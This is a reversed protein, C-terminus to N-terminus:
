GASPPKEELKACRVAGAATAAWCCLQQGAGWAPGAGLQTVQGLGAAGAEVAGWPEAEGLARAPPRLAVQGM